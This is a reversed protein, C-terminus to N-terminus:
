QLDDMKVWNEDMHRPLQFVEGERNSIYMNSSKNRKDQNDTWLAYFSDQANVPRRANYANIGSQATLQKNRKWTVGNDSSTWLNVQGGVTKDNTGVGDGGIMRWIGDEDIYLSGFEYLSDSSTIRRISWATGTWVAIRWQYLYTDTTDTKNEKIYFVVPNGKQDFTVDM